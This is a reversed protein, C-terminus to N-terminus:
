ALLEDIISQAVGPDDFWYERILPEIEFRVIRGYWANDYIGGDAEGCFFSHGISFGPGLNATDKAIRENLSTMRSVITALMADEVGKDRLHRTFGESKFEPVLDVFAFRRRLAYDVMALSRDATNMLGILYVNKPVYFREGLDKSYTLPVQWEDGRKDAEILLMLEGFIKSLNGRNIEDIVFVYPRDPDRMAKTCFQHFLGNKLEFNADGPRYGQVFDEYSYSQHFQVMEVRSPDKEGMLAYALRKAIFSKGVGPPGQLVINKKVRLLTLINEVEPRSIFVGSLAQDLTYPVSPVPPTTLRPNEYAGAFPEKVATGFGGLLSAYEDILNSLDADVQEKDLEESLDYVAHVYSEGYRIASKKYETQFYQEVTQDGEGVEWNIVPPNTASVGKALILIRGARYYLYVPYIGKTPTQGPALLGIWPVHAQNGAGFSVRMSLGAHSGPYDKTRLDETQAQELFTMLTSYISQEETADESKTTNQWLAKLPPVYWDLQQTGYEAEQQKRISALQQDIQFTSLRKIQNKDLLSFSQVIKLRDSSGFVREFQDPFLLYLLMHRLQRHENDDIGECWRAFKDGDQLLQARESKPLAFLKKLLLVFYVLERWRCNNYATGGSGIGALAAEGLLDASNPLSYGAWSLITEINQIKKKPKINSPGLLMVWMMEACLIKAANTAPALQKELKELFNGDGYDLNNVYNTVLQEVNEITWVNGFDFISGQDILCKSKWHAAASLTGTVDKQGCYRSM